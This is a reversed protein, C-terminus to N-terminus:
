MFLLILKVIYMELHIPSKNGKSIAIDCEVTLNLIEGLLSENKKYRDVLSNHIYKLIKTPHIQITHLKYLLERIDDIKKFDVKKELIISILKDLIFVYEFNFYTINKNYISTMFVGMINKMNYPEYKPMSNNVIKNFQDRNININNEVIYRNLYLVISELKPMPNRILLFRSKLPDIIKNLQYCEFIFKTTMSSKEIMRRLSMQSQTSLYDANKIYVVKPINFLINESNIYNKLYGSIFYRDNNAYYYPDFEIHYDSSYYIFTKGENEYTAKKLNYINKGLLQALLGYIKTSKGSGKSGYIALNSMNHIDINCIIRDISDNKFDLENYLLRRDFPFFDLM